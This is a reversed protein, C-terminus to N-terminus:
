NQISYEAYIARIWWEESLVPIFSSLYHWKQLPKDAIAEEVTKNNKILDRVISITTKINEVYSKFEQMTSIKGHGPVIIVDSPYDKIIAEWNAILNEIKAKFYSSVSPFSQSLYIDGLFLVKKNKIYIMMDTKTHGNSAFPICEIEFDNYNVEFRDSIFKYKVEPVTVLYYNSGAETGLITGGTSILSNGGRHDSHYHTNLIYEIKKDNITKIEKGLIEEDDKTGSDILLNGNASKLVTTNEKDDLIDQIMSIDSTIEVINYDKVIPVDPPEYVSIESEKSCGSVFLVFILISISSNYYKM